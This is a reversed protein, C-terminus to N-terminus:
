VVECVRGVELFILAASVREPPVRFQLHVAECYAEM